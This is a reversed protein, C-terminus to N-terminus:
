VARQPGRSDDTELLTAIRLLEWRLRVIDGGFLASRRGDTLFRWLAAVGRPSPADSRVLRAVDSAESSAFLLCRIEIPPRMRPDIRTWRTADRVYGELSRALREREKPSGLRRREDVVVPVAHDTGGNAILERALERIRARAIGLALALAFAVLVAVGVLVGAEHTHSLTGAIGLAIALSTVILQHAHARRLALARSLPHLHGLATAAADEDRRSLVSVFRELIAM